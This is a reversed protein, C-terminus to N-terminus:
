EPTETMTVQGKLDGRAAFTSYPQYLCMKGTPSNTTTYSISSGTVTVIDGTSPHKVTVDYTISARNGGNGLELASGVAVYKGDVIDYLLFRKWNGFTWLQNVSIFEYGSYTSPLLGYTASMYEISGCKLRWTSTARSPNDISFVAGDAVWDTYIFGDTYTSGNAAVLRASLLDVYSSTGCPMPMARTTPTIGFTYSLDYETRAGYRPKVAHQISLEAM